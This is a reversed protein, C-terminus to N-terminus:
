YGDVVVVNCCMYSFKEKMTFFQNLMKKCRYPWKCEYLRYIRNM